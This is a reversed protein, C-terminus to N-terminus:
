KAFFTIHEVFSVKAGNQRVRYIKMEKDILSLALLGFEESYTACLTYVSKTQM